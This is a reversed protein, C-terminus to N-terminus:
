NSEGLQLLCEVGNETVATVEINLSGVIADAIEAAVDADDDNYNGDAAFLEVLAQTVRQHIALRADASTKM